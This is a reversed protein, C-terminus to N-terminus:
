TPRGILGAVEDQVSFRFGPQAVFRAGLAYAQAELPISEYVCGNEAWGTVYRRVFGEIGALSFQVVHVLEHFLVPLQAAPPVSHEALLITDDFTIGSAQSFDLPIPIRAALLPAYFPPNTIVPVRTVRAEQLIGEEFFPSLRRIEDVSLARGVSRHQSRQDRVWRPGEAIFYEILTTLDV